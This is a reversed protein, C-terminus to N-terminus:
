KEKLNSELSVPTKEEAALGSRISGKGRGGEGKGMAGEGDDGRKKVGKKM